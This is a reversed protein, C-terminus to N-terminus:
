RWPAKEGDRLDRASVAPQMIAAVPSGRAPSPPNRPLTGTEPSVRSTAACCRRLRASLNQSQHVSLLLAVAVMAGTVVYTMELVLDAKREAATKKRVLETTFGSM